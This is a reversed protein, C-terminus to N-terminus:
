YINNDKNKRLLKFYHANYAVLNTLHERGKAKKMQECELNSTHSFRHNPKYSQVMPPFQGSPPQLQLKSTIKTQKTVKWVFTFLIFKSTCVLITIWYVYARSYYNEM